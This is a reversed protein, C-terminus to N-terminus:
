APVAEPVVDLADWLRGFLARFEPQQRIEVVNRPRPLDIAVDMKVRAPRGTLVVVRDSLAIAEEIDHTVFLVTKRDAEWIRLLTQQLTLRLQADLAGFPEDMLLTEPNQALTRAIAVRQRMGGSIEAPFHQEFGTLGVMEILSRVRAPDAKGAIDLALSVNREVTRWPLLTDRQTIYGVRTNVDTVRAGDYTVTGGSPHRLGAIMHLLTSKGCGSPGVVSVFEGAAIDLSVDEVAVLPGRKTPFAVRIHELGIHRSSAESRLTLGTM